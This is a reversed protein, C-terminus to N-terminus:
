MYGNKKDIAEDKIEERMGHLAEERRKNKEILTKKMKKDDTEAIMEDALECNQITKDINYQIRDVNDRRDDPKNKM